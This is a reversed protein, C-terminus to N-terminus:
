IAVLSQLKGWKDYVAHVQRLYIIYLNQISNRWSTLHSVQHPMSYLKALSVRLQPFMYPMDNATADFKGFVINANTKLM